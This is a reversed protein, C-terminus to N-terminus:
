EKVAIGLEAAVRGLFERAEPVQGPPLHEIIVFGDPCHQEFLRLFASHDLHGRGPVVESLHVVHRDEVTIDKAHASVTYSGLQQFLRELLATSRYADAVTPIYNVPDVNFRLSPSAVAEIVERTREPTDLPSVVHGEIALTVGEGEAAAAIPRL